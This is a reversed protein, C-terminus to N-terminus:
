KIIIMYRYMCHIYKLVYTHVYIQIYISNDIFVNISEQWFFIVQRFVKAVSGKVNLLLNFLIFYFYIENEVFVSIGGLFFFFIMFVPSHKM